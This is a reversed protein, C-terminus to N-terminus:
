KRSSSLEKIFQLYLNEMVQYINEPKLQSIKKQANQGLNFALIPNELVSLIQFAFEKPDNQVILGNEKDDIFEPAGGEGVVVVPLGIVMAEGVSLGQTESLSPFVFMDSVRLFSWIKEHSQEGMFFVWDELRMRRVIKELESKFPGGGVLVLITHTRRRVVKDFALLLMKLNKEKSLRGIYLLIKVKEPLGLQIRSPLAKSLFSPLEVGTPVVEIRNKIGYSRLVEKIFHSPSIILQCNKSVWRILFFALIRAILSFPWNWINAWTKLYFLVHAHYTMVVPIGLKRGIKVGLIGTPYPGQIHILDLGFDKMAEMDKDSLFPKAFKHGAFSFSPLRIVQFRTEDKYDSVKPAFLFVEHGRKLLEQILTEVSVVVGSLYPRYLEIFIGIKM